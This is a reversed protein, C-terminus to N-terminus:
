ELALGLEALVRDSVTAPGGVVYASRLSLRGLGDATADPVRTARTLLLPAGQRGARAAGVLADAYASGSAVYARTTSAPYLESIAEATTYRNPGWIRTFTGTDSYTAAARAATDSVSLPGGLM